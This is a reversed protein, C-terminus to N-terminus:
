CKGLTVVVADFSDGPIYGCMAQSESSYKVPVCFCLTSLHYNWVGYKDISKVGAAEKLWRNFLEPQQNTAGPLSGVARPDEV